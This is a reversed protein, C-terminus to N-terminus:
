KIYDKEFDEKNIIKIGLESAKKIKSNTMSEIDDQTTVLINLNKSVSTLINGGEKKILEEWLKNRFGSFVINLGNLKSENDIELDNVVELLIKNQIHEPIKNTLELFSSMNKVFQSSTIIDLGNIQNLEDILKDEDMEIYKYIIDPHVNLIKSLKKEGIGHGFVNSAVMFKLLTINNIAEQINNYIKNIMTTKFNDVKALDEKKISLIKDISDIGVEIFKTINADSLNKIELKSCFYTLEKIKQEDTNTDLVLIDVGSNNWKYEIEPMQAITSKVVEM